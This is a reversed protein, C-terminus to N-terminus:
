LMADLVVTAMRQVVAVTHRERSVQLAPIMTLTIVRMVVTASGYTVAAIKV